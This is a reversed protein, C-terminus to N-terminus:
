RRRSTRGQHWKALDHPRNGYPYGDETSVATRNGPITDREAQDFITILDDGARLSAGPSDSFARWLQEGTESAIGLMTERAAVAGGAGHGV